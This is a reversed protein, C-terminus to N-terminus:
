GWLGASSSSGSNRDPSHFCVRLSSRFPRLIYWVRGGVGRHRAKIGSHNVSLNNARAAHRLRHSLNQTVRVHPVPYELPSLCTRNVQCRVLVYVGGADRDRKTDDSFYVSIHLCLWPRKLVRATGIPFLFIDCNCKWEVKAASKVSKFPQMGSIKPTIWRSFRGAPQFIILGTLMRQPSLPPLFSRLKTIFLTTIFGGKGFMQTPEKGSPHEM